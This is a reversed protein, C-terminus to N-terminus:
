FTPLRISASASSDPPAVGDGEAVPNPGEGAGGEVPRLDGYEM